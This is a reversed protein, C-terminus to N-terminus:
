KLIGLSKILAEQLVASFNINEKLARENLWSPITLTKKVSKVEKMFSTINVTILSVFEGENVKIAFVDSSVPLNGGDELLVLVYGTLAEEARLAIENLDGGFTQCGVLDPFDVCYKGDEKRFIAPYTVIM